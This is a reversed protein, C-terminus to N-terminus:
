INLQSCEYDQATSLQVYIYISSYISIYVEFYINIAATRTASPPLLPM